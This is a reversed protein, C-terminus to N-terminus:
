HRCVIEGNKWGEYDWFRGIRALQSIITDPKDPRDPWKRTCHGTVSKSRPVKAICLNWAISCFDVEIGVVYLLYCIMARM